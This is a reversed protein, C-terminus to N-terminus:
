KSVKALLVCIKDLRLGREFEVVLSLGEVKDLSVEMRMGEFINLRRGFNELVIFCEFILM